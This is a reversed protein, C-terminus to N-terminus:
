EAPLENLMNAWELFKNQLYKQYIPNAQGVVEIHDINNIEGMYNWVGRVPAEPNYDAIEDSSGEHPGIASRVSVIGDNRWWSQDVKVQGDTDNTHRGMYISSKIMLPNMNINPIQYGTLINEHTDVCAISFYFIDSQAKVWSNLEKAGELSLDWISLDNTENWINSNFVRDLYSDLTDNEQLKLGWQDLRLDFCPNSSEILGGKVAMAAFLKHVFPELNEQLNDYQSGDHPTAITTISGIWHHGGTFLPSIDTTNSEIEDPDGNELLQALIRITEGGMSHGILHVKRLTENEDTTGLEKYVGPYTRGYRAHGEKQSHALGYDVTGGKLYAYLECARDWNSSLSGITPTYVTYGNETLLDRLSNTGGWYNIGFLEDNGWGFLGHVMVIPYNNTMQSTVQAHSNDETASVPLTNVTPALVVLCLSLLFLAGKKVYNKMKLVEKVINNVLNYYLLMKHKKNVLYSM